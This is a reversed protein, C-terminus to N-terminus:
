RICTWSPSHLPMRFTENSFLVQIIGTNWQSICSDVEKLSALVECRMIVSSECQSVGHEEILSYVEGGTVLFDQYVQMLYRFSM